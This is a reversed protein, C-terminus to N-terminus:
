ILPNLGRCYIGILQPFTIMLTACLNTSTDSSASYKRDKYYQDARLVGSIVNFLLSLMTKISSMEYLNICHTYM